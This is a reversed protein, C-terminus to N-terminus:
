KREWTIDEETIDEDKSYDWLMVCSVCGVTRETHGNICVKKESRPDMTKLEIERDVIKICETLATHRNGRAYCIAYEMSSKLKRLDILNM